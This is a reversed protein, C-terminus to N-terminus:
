PKTKLVLDLSQDGITIPVSTITNPTSASKELVLVEYGEEVLTGSVKQKSTDFISYTGAYTVPTPANIGTVVISWAFSAGLTVSNPNINTGMMTAVLPDPSTDLVPAPTVCVGNQLVQPAVCTPPPVVCQGNQVVQGSPCTASVNQSTSVTRGYSDTATLTVSWPTDSYAAYTHAVTVGTGTTSDGFSWVYGTIAAAPTSASADFSAQLGSFTASFAPNLAAVAAIAIARSTTKQVGDTYLVTLKASYSGPSAYSHKATAGNGSTGDGFDWTYSSVMPQYGSAGADFNYSYLASGAAASFQPVHCTDDGASWVPTQALYDVGAAPYMPFEYVYGAPASPNVQKLWNSKYDTKLEVGAAVNLLARTGATVTASSYCGGLTGNAPKNLQGSLNARIGSEVTAQSIELGALVFGADIGATLTAAASGSVDYSAGEPQAPHAAADWFAVPAKANGSLLSVPLGLSDNASIGMAAAIDMDRWQYGLSASAEVQMDATMFFKVVMGVPITKLASGAGVPVVGAANIVAAGLLIKAPDKEVGHVKLTTGQYDFSYANHAGGTYFGGTAGAFLAGIDGANASFNGSVTAKINRALTGKLQLNHTVLKGNEIVINAQSFNSNQLEVQGTFVIDVKPAPTGPDTGVWKNDVKWFTAKIGSSFDVGVATASNKAIVNLQVLGNQIAGLVGGAVQPTTKTYARAGNQLAVGAMLQPNTAVNSLNLNLNQFVQGVDAPVFTATTTPVGGTTAPQVSQVVGAYGLPLASSGEFVMVQGPRAETLKGGANQVTLVQQGAGDSSLAAATGQETSGVTVVGAQM